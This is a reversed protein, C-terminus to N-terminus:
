LITPSLGYGTGMVPAGVTTMPAAMTTMPAGLVAGGGIVSAGYAPSRCLNGCYICIGDIPCVHHTSTRIDRCSRSRGHSTSANRDCSGTCDNGYRRSSGM